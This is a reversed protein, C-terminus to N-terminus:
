TSVMMNEAEGMGDMGMGSGWCVSQRQLERGERSVSNRLGTGRRGVGGAQLIRM